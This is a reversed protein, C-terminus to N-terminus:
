RAIEEVYKVGLACVGELHSAVTEWTLVKETNWARTLGVSLCGPGAHYNVLTFKWLDEYSAVDGPAKKALNRVMRGAQACNAKLTEAFVGVSFSAKSIDIGFPCNECSANVAHILSLQLLKKEEDSLRPYGLNCREQPLLLPCFQDFFSFNWLLMTDAGNETLQGLGIDGGERFIGPWFQSERAFLNKLMQAPVGTNRAIELILEDFRNQWEIVKPRAMELGCPSISGDANRGGDPCSSVDVAGQAILNSALYEYPIKTELDQPRAPTRLWRPLDEVPPFAEWIESCSAPAPGRWQSSLVNVYWYKREPDNIPARAVRIQATYAVSSDGYSSWAWFRLTQKGSKPNLLLTCPHDCSFAVGEYEGEIRTIHENPLPEEGELLLRPRGECLFSFQLPAEECGKVSVWVTAPPLAVIIEREAPYSRVEYLYFGACLTTDERLCPPQELYEEYIEQGCSRYVEQPSPQGEHDITLECEVKNNSWRTVWWVHATYEVKVKKFRDPGPPNQLAFAQSLKGFLFALLLLFCLFFSTRKMLVLSYFRIRVM